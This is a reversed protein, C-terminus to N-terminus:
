VFQYSDGIELPYTCTSDNIDALANYNIALSDTCGYVDFSTVDSKSCSSFLLPM